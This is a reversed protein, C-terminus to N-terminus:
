SSVHTIHEHQSWISQVSTTLCCHSNSGCELEVKIASLRQWLASELACHVFCLEIDMDLPTALNMCWPINLKLFDAKNLDNTTPQSQNSVKKVSSLLCCWNACVM